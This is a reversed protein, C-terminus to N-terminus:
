SNPNLAAPNQGLTSSGGFHLRLTCNLLGDSSHLAPVKAVKSRRNPPSKSGISVITSTVIHLNIKVIAIIHIIMGFLISIMILVIAITMMVIITVTILSNNDHDDYYGDYFYDYVKKLAVPSLVDLTPM